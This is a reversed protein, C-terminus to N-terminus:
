KANALVGLRNQIGRIRHLLQNRRGENKEKKYEARAKKLESKAKKESAGSYYDMFYNNWYENRANYTNWYEERDANYKNLAYERDAQWRAQALNQRYEEARSNMDSTYDAINQDIAQNISNVSNSYDSNAAGVANGYANQVRLNATESAGGRIGAAALRDNLSNENQVRNIYAQKLASDQTKRAENIQNARNAEAQKKYDNIANTYYSTNIGQRYKKEDYTPSSYTPLQAM